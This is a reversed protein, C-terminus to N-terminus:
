KNISSVHRSATDGKDDIVVKVAPTDYLSPLVWLFFLNKMIKRQNKLQKIHNVHHGPKDRQWAAHRLRACVICFCNNYIWTLMVIQPHRYVAGNVKKQVTSIM